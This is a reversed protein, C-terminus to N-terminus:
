LEPDPLEGLIGGRPVLRLGGEVLPVDAGHVDEAAGAGGSVGHVPLVAELQAVVVLDALGEGVLRSVLRLRDPEGHRLPLGHPVPEGFLRLDWPLPPRALARPR